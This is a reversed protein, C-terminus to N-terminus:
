DLEVLLIRDKLRTPCFVMASQGVKKPNLPVDADLVILDSVERVSGSFKDGKQELAFRSGDINLDSPGATPYRQLGNSQQHYRGSSIPNDVAQALRAFASAACVLSLVIMLSRLSYKM